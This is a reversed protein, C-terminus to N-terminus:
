KLINLTSNFSTNDGEILIQYSGAPLSSIEFSMQLQNDPIVITKVLRGEYNYMTLKNNSGPPANLQIQVTEQAPNPFINITNSTIDAVDTTVSINECKEDSGNANTATLCVLYNGNSPFTHLPNQFGSIGGDGFDWYWDSPANTSIDTFQLQTGAVVDYTFAVEPLTGVLAINIYKCNNDTGGPGTATLCVFYTGNETYEHVPNQETSITGDDFSWFWSFPDNTSLDLFAVIPDGANSFNAVIPSYGDVIVEKCISASGAINSATLCVTYADNVAYTHIPNQETSSIGDGFTWNWSDPANATLDTFLFTPDGAFSFDPVPLISNIEVDQCFNSSGLPNSATLCVNYIGNATFTHTPNKITAVVGDDFNWNWTTAGGTTLDTFNVIPDGTFTFNAVPIHVALVEACKTDTDYNNKATLCVNFVGEGYTHIVNIETSLGGDGFDWSYSEADISLNTCTLEFNGGGIDVLTMNFDAVPAYPDFRSFPIAQYVIENTHIPDAPSDNYVGPQDDRQWMVHVSNDVARDFVSPYAHEYGNFASYTLNVPTSWSTGGDTSYIGFLDSRSQALPNAPNDFDDTNEVPMTYVVYVTGTAPDIAAAPNSTFGDAGYASYNIGIGGYPNNTGDENRWDTITNIISVGAAGIKWFFLGSTQPVYSWGATGPDDDFIKTVGSFMYISGDDTVLLEHAGDTTLITDADGDADIDTSQGFGGNYNDIPFDLLPIESWTGPYGASGSYLIKMDTNPAGYLVFVDLGYGAVKYYDALITSIGEANGLYPLASNLVFWSEGGDSSGSFQLAPTAGPAINIVYIYSTGTVNYAVPSSGSIDNSGATEIWDQEGIASNKYVKVNVGDSSILIEHDSLSFIEGGLTKVAEVRDTPLPAWVGATANNYFTGRDNFSAAGSESGIWAASVSGDNYVQLRKKTAATSQVDFTTTGIVQVQAFILNVSFQLFLFFTVNNNIKM